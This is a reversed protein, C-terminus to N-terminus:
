KNDADHCAGVTPDREHAVRAEVDARRERPREGEPTVIEHEAIGLVTEGLLEPREADTHLGDFPTRLRESGSDARRNTAAPSARNPRISAAAANEPRTIM